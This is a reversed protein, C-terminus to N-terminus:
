CCVCRRQLIPKVRPAGNSKPIQSRFRAEKSLLSAGAGAAMVSAAAITSTSTALFDRRSVDQQTETQDPTEKAVKKTENKM